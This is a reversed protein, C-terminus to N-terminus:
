SKTNVTARCTVLSSTYRAMKGSDSGAVGFRPCRAGPRRVGVSAGPCRGSAGPAGVVSGPAGVVLVPAGLVSVRVPAGVVLVQPV